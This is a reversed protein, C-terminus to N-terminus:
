SSATNTVCKGVSEFGLGDYIMFSCISIYDNRVGFSFSFFFFWATKICCYILMYNSNLVSIGCKMVSVDSLKM